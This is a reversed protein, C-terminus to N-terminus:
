VPTSFRYSYNRMVTHFQKSWTESSCKVLFETSAHMRNSLGNSAVLDFKWMCSVLWYIMVKVNEPCKRGAVNTVLWKGRNLSKQMIYVLVFQCSLSYCLTTFGVRSVIEDLGYCPGSPICSLYHVQLVLLFSSCILSQCSDGLSSGWWYVAVSAFVLKVTWFVWCFFQLWFLYSQTVDM